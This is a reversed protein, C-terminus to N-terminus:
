VVDAEDQLVELFDFGEFFPVGGGHRPQGLYEM